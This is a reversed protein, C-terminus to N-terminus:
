ALHMRRARARFFAVLADVYARDTRVNVFDIKLRRMAEERARAARRVHAAYARAEPGSSDFEIVAGSEVDEFAILGLEPLAEEMPDTIVVPVLDHKRAAIRLGQEWGTALFDSVLFAVSRRRAIRGLYELGAGLHTM